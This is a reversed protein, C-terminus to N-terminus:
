RLEISVTASDPSYPCCDAGDYDCEITNYRPDCKGDGIKSPEVADCNPYALNYNVCDGLIPNPFSTLVHYALSAYCWFHLTMRAHRVEM